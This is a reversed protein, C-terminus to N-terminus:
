RIRSKNKLPKTIPEYFEPRRDNFVDIENEGPIFVIKKERATEPEIEAYLIDNEYAKGDALVVGFCHTIKSRGIFKFGREEGVRNIAIYFVLNEISRAPLIYEPFNEVGEPWNTPLLIMDAGQIALVRAHEPFYGDYCIGLGIKGIETEYVTLPLNGHNLFRDIGLYPLHLKRHKGIIGQPGILVAANYFKDGDRELMGMVVYVGLERCEVCLRDTSPGPILETVPIAEELSNFCYGTLACEPFVILKIGETANARIHYIMKELNQEKELIKPEMQIGAMKLKLTM